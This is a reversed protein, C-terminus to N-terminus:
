NCHWLGAAQSNCVKQSIPITAKMVEIAKELNKHTSLISNILKNALLDDKQSHELQLQYLAEIEKAISDSASVKDKKEWFSDTSISVSNLNLSDSQSADYFESQIAAEYSNLDQQTDDTLSKVTNSIYNNGWSFGAVWWRKDAVNNYNDLNQLIVDANETKLWQRSLEKELLRREVERERSKETAWILLYWADKWTKYAKDQNKLTQSLRKISESVKAFSWGSCQNCEAVANAGYSKLIQKQFNLTASEDDTWAVDTSILFLYKNKSDVVESEKWMSTMRLYDKIAFNNEYLLELIDWIPWQIDKGWLTCKGRIWECLEDHELYMDDYRQDVLLYQIKRIRDSEKSLKQYDRYIPSPLSWQMQSLVYFDFLDDFRRSDVSRNIWWVLFDALKSAQTEPVRVGRTRIINSINKTIKKNEEIYFQLDENTKNKITCYQGTQCERIEAFSTSISLFVVCFTCSLISLIKKM